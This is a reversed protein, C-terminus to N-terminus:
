MGNLRQAKPALNVLIVGVIVMLAGWMFERHLPEDLLWVGFGVGILPTLFSFITVRSALYHRLLWFWLLLSFFSIVVGQALISFM